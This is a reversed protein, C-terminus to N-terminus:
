KTKWIRYMNETISADYNSGKNEIFNYKKYIKILKSKSTGFTSEVTLKITKKNQKSYEILHTLVENLTGEKKNKVIILSFTIYEKNEEIYLKKTKDKHYKVLEKVNKFKM